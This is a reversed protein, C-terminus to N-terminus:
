LFIYRGWLVREEGGEKGVKVKFGDVRMGRWSFGGHWPM